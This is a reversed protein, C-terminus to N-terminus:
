ESRLADIPALRAARSAPYVGFIMGIGMAVVIAVLAAPVSVEIRTDSVAPIVVAGAIGTVVGLIGGALGLLGAEVVFQRRISAPRAGIAKRLGIERIRETVSVLMINMVGIGGVLLAIFAIGGLMVTLTDDVSSATSLASEATAISFDADASSTIGHNNLLIATAEQYAGSVSAASDAKVYISSVSNRNTGGVLRQQYTSLPVVALDNSSTQESSSLPELVGVVELKVGNYSITEGVPDRGSFLESATDSGLVVVADADREDKTTIFRGNAVERSRAYKWSPTTGTITTTWNDTGNVLSGNTSSVPAVAAIDPAAADSRLAEADQETLTSASGFGGRVGASSTSSGPSIVLLNTGLANIDDQVQARAGQGIGVTLVVATIGILIGLMTLASRLRHSRVADTATHLVDRWNM